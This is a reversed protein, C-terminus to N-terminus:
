LEESGLEPELKSTEELNRGKTEPLWWLILLLAGCPGLATIAVSPGYGYIEAAAGVAAPALVYGVRGFLNNSWAFADGRLRTPFLETNFANLVPLVASAGFIAGVVSVFLITPHEATYAGFASAATVLFIVVASKKRGMWDIFFGVAFVLPMALVAGFVIYGGVEGDTLHPGIAPAPATAYEKWFMVANATCLYTLAWIAALQLVRKRYPTNWIALISRESKESTDIAEFRKSEKLGRRAFALLLLPVTGVLYVSRWGWATELLLPVVGACVVSGLSSFAQILGIMLGRRHAPFEEAAYVMSIAWEGILFIRAVLQCAAFIWINPSLATLFSFITYGAITITLVRKRGWRDAKRVLFYALVTGVNIVAVVYGGYAETVGFAERINPLLQSLAIHDYGEFFTAVSLFGFLKWHYPTLKERPEEDSM